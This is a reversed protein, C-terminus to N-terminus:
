GIAGGGSPIFRQIEELPIKLTEKREDNSSLQALRNKIQKALKSSSEKGPILRVYLNSQKAVSESPGGIVKPREKERKIGVAVELPVNKIYNKTGYIMFSGRALYEGSPPSKSVQGPSVWYIDIARIAEKWARSYSAAFRAAEKITQEPPSKGQTKILVFPAGPIDAHFVMDKPEIYKKILVENTSADKGGIVLFGDSSHFWRFKKYWEQKEKKPQPKSIKEMKEIMQLRTKEIKERTENIAKNVGGIKMKAKKAKMYYEAANKQASQKLNLDFTQGEVFVQLSLTESKVAQFYVAPVDLESKEKQLTEAIETWSRGSRKDRMVRQVLFELDNLHTYIADGIRSYVEAKGKLDRLTEEQERLIKELRAVNKEVLKEVDSVKEVVSAKAYYEDLAENFNKTRIVKLHAYKKLPMPAVDIWRGGEDIFIFPKENEARIESLLEHLSNFVADLDGDGLSSCPTNKEVGARLLVEEAYFGGISLFRTLAIVINLQGFNKIEYLGKRSLDKPNAGRPPPYTFAEGVLINRDKMRRYNLARLIKNEPGVLVINGESFLEIILRYEENRSKVTIEVIREFGYQQVKEIRGNELCKRLAMCFDPPKSPKEFVYSTIHVRKGAEILLHASNGELGRLKLLLTKPNIQYINSIRFGSLIHDLEVTVTAIDFSNMEEKL